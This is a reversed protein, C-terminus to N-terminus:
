RSVVSDAIAELQRKREASTSDLANALVMVWRRNKEMSWWQWIFRVDKKQDPQLAAFVAQRGSPLTVVKPKQTYHLGEAAKGSGAILEELANSLDTEPDIPETVKVVLEAGTENLAGFHWLLSGPEHELDMGEPVRLSVGTEELKTEVLKWPGSLTWPRGQVLAIGMSAVLLLAVSVGALDFLRSRALPQNQVAGRTLALVLLGGTIGGGVHALMDIGPQLSYMLNIGVPLWARQRMQLALSAPLLGRPWTVVVAGAVMLGWIGGSAGVGIGDGGRTLSLLSGGLGAVVFLLVYRGSGMLRELFPGFSLMAMMNMLLHFVNAHLLMVSFLRWWEGALVRNPIEAGMRAAAMVPQGDGWLWQLGFLAVCVVALTWSVVPQRAMVSALFGRVVDAERHSAEAVSELSLPVNSNALTAAAVLQPLLNNRVAVPAEGPVWTVAATAKMQLMAPRIHEKLIDAVELGRPNIVVLHLPLETKAAAAVIHKVQEALVAPHTAELVVVLQKVPALALSIQTLVPTSEVVESGPNQSLLAAAFRSSPSDM